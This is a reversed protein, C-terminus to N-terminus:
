VVSRAQGVSGVLDLKEEVVKQVADRGCALIKRPDIEEKDKSFFDKLAQTFAFRLETDININNVGSQIAKRVDQRTEGSAGHLVLPIDVLSRIEELINFRIETRYLGHSTGVSVALSDIDTREVYEKAQLPDTYEIVNNKHNNKLQGHLGPITGLEGQVFIDKSHAFEVVQRTLAVNEEFSLDAADIQVSSFGAKICEVISRFSRGHDLHLAIPADKGETEVVSRVIRTIAKLGAYSITTESVQVVLPSKMNSAARIIGQTMELNCTNFAGLAYAEERAKEILDRLRALM